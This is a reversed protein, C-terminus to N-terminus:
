HALQLTVATARIVAAAKANTSDSDTFDDFEIDTSGYLGDLTVKTAIEPDLNYVAKDGLGAYPKSSPDSAPRSYWEAGKGPIVILSAVALNSGAEQYDCAYNPVPVTEVETYANTFPEGTLAKAKALPMIACVDVPKAAVAATSAGTAGSSPSTSSGGSHTTTAPSASSAGSHCGVLVLLAVVSISSAFASSTRVSM